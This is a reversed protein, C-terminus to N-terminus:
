VMHNGCFGAHNRLGPFYQPLTYTLNPYLTALCFSDHVQAVLLSLLPTALPCLPYKGRVGRLVICLMISAGRGMKGLFVLYLM